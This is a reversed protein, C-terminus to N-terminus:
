LFASFITKSFHRFILSSLDSFLKDFYNHLIRLSALINFSKAAKDDVNLREVYNNQYDL